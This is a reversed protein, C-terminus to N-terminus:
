NDKHSDRDLAARIKRALDSINFPKQVVSHAGLALLAESEVVTSHGTSVIIPAAIDRLLLRQLLEKGNMEPMSFDTLVLSIKSRNDSWLQLAEEGNSCLYVTYGLHQLLNGIGERIDREDDVVLLTEYGRLAASVGDNVRTISPAGSVPLYVKFTSGQSPDTYVRVTGGADRVCEWVTSLGLGTGKKTGYKKTTYFPDFMKERVDDPIGPGTDSISALVYRGPPIGKHSVNNASELECPSLAIVLQGQAGMAEIANVCLNLFIQHMRATSSKVYLPDKEFTYRIEIGKPASHTLVQVTNRVADCVDVIDLNEVGKDTSSFQLLRRIVESTNDVISTIRNLENAVEPEPDCTLAYEASAMIGTLFNNFDHAIGGALSGIAELHRVSRLQQELYANEMRLVYERHATEIARMLSQPSLNKKPLYDSAGFRMSETAIDEDGQGTLMIVPRLDGRDRLEKLVEPGTINGLFFDLFIIDAPRKSLADLGTEWNQFGEFKVTLSNCAALHRQLAELDIDDDDIAFVSLKQL